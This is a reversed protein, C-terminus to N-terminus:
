KSDSIVPGVGQIDDNNDCSVTSESKYDNDDDDDINIIIREMVRDMKHERRMYEEEVAKVHRCVAVWVEMTVAAFNQEALQQVDRLKFTVNKAAIRTKMIGCIKEIPNLDPHYPPLRIVTYGHETLLCDIAFTKYQPKHMKILDCLEAKTMNSSYRIGHKDLWILMEGKIANSTPHRNRQVNYYSANDFVIFSKSEM